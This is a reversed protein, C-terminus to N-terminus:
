RETAIDIGNSPSYLFWEINSGGLRVEWFLPKSERNNKQQTTGTNLTAFLVTRSVLM